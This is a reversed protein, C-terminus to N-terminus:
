DYHFGGPRVVLTSCDAGHIIKEATSGILLDHIATHGRSSLVVLDPDSKELYEVMGARLSTHIYVHSEHPYDAALEQATRDLKERAAALLAADNEPSYVPIGGVFFGTGAVMGGIPQHIHLLDLSAEDQQAIHLAATVAHRSPESFDVCACIKRFPRDHRDRVILVNTDTKRVCRTAVSGLRHQDDNVIGHSGLVILDASVAEAMAMLERYPHGVVFECRVSDGTAGIVQDVHERMQREAGAVMQEDPVDVERGARKLVEEDLVNLIVLDAGDWRAIRAAERLANDAPESFDIGVLLTRLNKM